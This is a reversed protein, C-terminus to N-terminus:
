SGFRMGGTAFLGITSDGPGTVFRFDAGVFYAPNSLQYYGTVGPWMGLESDSASEMFPGNSVSGTVGILGVGLYPRIVFPALAFTYGIEPGVYYASMSARAGGVTSSSGLHYVGLGGVYIRNPLTKGGRVGVGLNLHDSGIGVMADFALRTDTPPKTSVPREAIAPAGSRDSPEAPAPEIVRAIPARRPAGANPPSASPTREGAAAIGPVTLLALKVLVAGRRAVTSM